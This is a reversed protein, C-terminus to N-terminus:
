RRQKGYTTTRSSSVAGFFKRGLRCWSNYSTSRSGSFCGFVFADTDRVRAALHYQRLPEINDITAILYVADDYRCRPNMTLKFPGKRYVHTDWYRNRDAEDPIVM